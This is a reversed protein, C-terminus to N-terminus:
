GWSFVFHILIGHFVIKGWEPQVIGKMKAPNM